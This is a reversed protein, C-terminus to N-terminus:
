RPSGELPRCAASAPRKETRQWGHVHPQRAARRPVVHVRRPPTWLRKEQLQAWAYRLTHAGDPLATVRLTM